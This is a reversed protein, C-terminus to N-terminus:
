PAAQLPGLGKSLHAHATIPTDEIRKPAQALRRWAGTQGDRYLMTAHGECLNQGSIAFAFLSCRWPRVHWSPGIPRSGSPAVAAFPSGPVGPRLHVHPM